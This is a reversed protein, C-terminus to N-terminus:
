TFNNSIVHFNGRDWRGVGGGNVLANLCVKLQTARANVSHLRRILEQGSKAIEQAIEPNNELYLHAELLDKPECEIYNEGAVFGLHSMGRFSRCVLVSGAAPIEFFKRIPMELGSGCTYSYRSSCLRQYFDDQMLNLSWNSEGRLLGARRLGAIVKRRLGLAVPDLGCSRLNKIAEKRAAYPAGLVTWPFKRQNLPTICFEDDGVLHHFSSVKKSNESLFTAWFDTANKQFSEELLNKMNSKFSWTEPGFGLIVDSIDNFANIEFTGFNYYDAELLLLVKPIPCDLLLSRIENMSTFEADDFSYVFSRRYLRAIQSCNHNQFAGALAIHPTLVIADVMSPNNILERLRKAPDQSSFGPGIFEIDTSLKLANILENRTRNLYRINLDIYAIKM